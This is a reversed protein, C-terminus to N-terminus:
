HNASLKKASPHPNFVVANGGAIMGIANCIITESPNTCPTIAGIVGFPACDQLTLGYDGTFTEPELDEVGPTKEIALRNKVIKDEYRGMKTEEVGLKAITSLNELCIERIAAIIKKRQDVSVSKYDLFAKEGGRIADDISYFVGADGEIEPLPPVRMPAPKPACAEPEKKSPKMSPALQGVVRDVIANIKEESLSM